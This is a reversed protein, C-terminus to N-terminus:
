QDELVVDVISLRYDAIPLSVAISRDAISSGRM